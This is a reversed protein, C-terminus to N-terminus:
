QNDPPPPPNEIAYVRSLLDAVQSELLDLRDEYSQILLAQGNYLLQPASYSIYDLVGKNSHEHLDGHDFMQLHAGVNADTGADGKDGKLVQYNIVLASAQEDIRVGGVEQMIISPTSDEIIILSSM